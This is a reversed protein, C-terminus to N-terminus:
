SPRASEEFLAFIHCGICARRNKGTAKSTHIEAQPSTLGPPAALELEVVRADDVDEDIEVDEDVDDDIVVDEDDDAELVEAVEDEEDLM